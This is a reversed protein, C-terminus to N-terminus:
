VVVDTTVFSRVSTKFTSLQHTFRDRQKSELEPEVGDMLEDFAAILRPQTEVPQKAVLADRFQVFASPVLLGLSFLPRSSSWQNACDEFLVYHLLSHFSSVIVDGHHTVVSRAAELAGALLAREDAAGADGM